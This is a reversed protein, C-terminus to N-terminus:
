EVIVNIEAASTWAEDNIESLAKLKIFRCSKADFTVTKKGKGEADDFAGKKIPKGFDKGDDSVYFEYDRIHGHDSEDQRPLYTFGKIRSPPTLEIIIEHPPRPNDDNWQTHWITSANGDVANSAHGDEGSTEESDAKVVKLTVKKEAGTAPKSDSASDSSKMRKAVVDMSAFDGVKRTFKIEDGALKGQYEIRIDQDNVHLPEVFTVDSGTVKGEKIDTESKEGDVDRIAKGTLKDGDTRLDYTYKLHGVPSDFEAQWRGAADAARATGALAFTLAAVIALKSTMSKSQNFFNKRNSVAGNHQTAAMKALSCIGEVCKETDAKCRVRNPSPSCAFLVLNWAGVDLSAGFKLM